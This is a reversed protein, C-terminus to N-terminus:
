PYSSPIFYSSRQHCVQKIVVKQSKGSPNAHASHGTLVVFMLFVLVWAFSSWTRHSRSRVRNGVCGGSGVMDCASIHTMTGTSSLDSIKSSFHCPSINSCKVPIQLIVHQRHKLLITVVASINNNAIFKCDKVRMRSSLRWGSEHAVSKVIKRM